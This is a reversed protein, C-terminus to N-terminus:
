EQLTQCMKIAQESLSSTYEMRKGIKDTTQITEFMKLEVANVRFDLSNVRQGILQLEEYMKRLTTGHKFEAQIRAEIESERFERFKVVQDELIKEYNAVTVDLQQKDIVFGDMRRHIVDAKQNM